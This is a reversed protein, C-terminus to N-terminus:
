NLLSFDGDVIIREMDLSNAQCFEHIMLVLNQDGPMSVFINLINPEDEDYRVLHFKPSTLIHVRSMVNARDTALLSELEPITIELADVFTDSVISDSIILFFLNRLERTLKGLRSIFINIALIVDDNKMDADLDLFDIFAIATTINQFGERRIANQVVQEFSTKNESAATQNQKLAAVIAQLNTTDEEKSYLQKVSVFENEPMIEGPNFIRICNNPNLVAHYNTKYTALHSVIYNIKRETTATIPACILIYYKDLGLAYSEAYQAKVKNAFNEADVDGPSKIQVGVKVGEKLVIAVDCGSDGISQRNEISVMGIHDKNINVYNIFTTILNPHNLTQFHQCEADGGYGRNLIISFDIISDVKSM